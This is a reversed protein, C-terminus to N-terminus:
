LLRNELLKIDFILSKVKQIVQRKSFGCFERGTPEMQEKLEGLKTCEMLLIAGGQGKKLFNVPVSNICRHGDENYREVMGQHIGM